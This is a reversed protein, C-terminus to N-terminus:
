AGIEMLLIGLRSNGSNLYWTNANTKIYLTYDVASTTSPSDIYNFATTPKGYNGAENLAELMVTTLDSFGGGGIQRYLKIQGEAAGGAYSGRGGNIWIAIKSGTASPTIQDTIVTTVFGTSSTSITDTFSASQTQLIKGPSFSTAGTGGNATPLTGTVQSALNLDGTTNTSLNVAQNPGLRTLAM